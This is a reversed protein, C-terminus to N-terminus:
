ETQLVINEPKYIFTFCEINSLPKLFSCFIRCYLTLFCKWTSFTYQRLVYPNYAFFIQTRRNRLILFRSQISLLLKLVYRLNIKKKKIQFLPWNQKQVIKEWGCNYASDISSTNKFRDSMDVTSRLSFM